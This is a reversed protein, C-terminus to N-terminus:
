GDKEIGANIGANTSEEGSQKWGVTRAVLQEFRPMEPVQLGHKVRPSNPASKYEAIQFEGQALKRLGMIAFLSLLRTKAVGEHKALRVLLDNLECPIEMSVKVQKEVKPVHDQRSADGWDERLGSSTNGWQAQNRSPYLKSNRFANNEGLEGQAM